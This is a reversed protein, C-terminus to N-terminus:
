PVVVAVFNDLLVAGDTWYDGVGPSQNFVNMSIRMDAFNAGASPTFTETYTHWGDGGSDGTNDGIFVNQEGEFTNNNDAQWTRFGVRVNNGSTVTGLINYDFQIIVTNSGGAAAGLSFV